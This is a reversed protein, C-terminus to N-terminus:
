NVLTQWESNEHATLAERQAQEKKGVEEPPKVYWGFRCQLMFCTAKLAVAANEGQALRMLNSVLKAEVKAGGADLEDRYHKNLTTTSVDLRHAIADHRIGVAALEEVVARSEATPKHM